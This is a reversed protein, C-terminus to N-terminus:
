FSFFFLLLSLKVLLVVGLTTRHLGLVQVLAPVLRQLVPLLVGHLANELLLPVSVFKVEQLQGVFLRDVLHRLLQDVLRPRAIHALLGHIRVLFHPLM